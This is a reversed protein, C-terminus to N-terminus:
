AGGSPIVNDMFVLETPSNLPCVCSLEDGNLDASQYGDFQGFGPIGATLVENLCAPLRVGLDNFTFARTSNPAM